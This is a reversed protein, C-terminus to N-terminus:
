LYDEKKLWNYAFERSTKLEDLTHADSNIMICKANKLMIKLKTLDDRNKMLNSGNLELPIKYKNATETLKKIDLYKSIPTPKDYTANFCPHAICIIKDNYKKIAKIYGQTIKKFDGSYVDPHCSLLIKKYEKSQIKLSINGNENLLDAEVAFNVKVKNWINKFEKIADKTKKIKIKKVIKMWEDSHDSITIEKMKLKGAYQVIEEITNLGDSFTCSHIHHDTKKDNVIKFM